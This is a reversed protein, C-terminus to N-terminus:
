LWGAALRAAAAVTAGQRHCFRRGCLGPAGRATLRVRYPTKQPSMGQAESLRLLFRVGQVRPDVEEVFGALEGVFSRDLVPADIRAARWGGCFEGAGLAALGIFLASLGRKARSFMRRADGLFRRRPRRDVLGARDRRSSLSDGGGGGGGAALSLPPALGMGRGAGRRFARLAWGRVLASPPRGVIAGAGFFRGALERPALPM